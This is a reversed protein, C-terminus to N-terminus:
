DILLAAFDRELWSFILSKSSCSWKFIDFYLYRVNIFGGKSIYITGWFYIHRASGSDNKKWEHPILHPYDLLFDLVNANLVPKNALEARFKEGEIYNHSGGGRQWHEPLYLQIKTPDWVLQGGKKHELVIWDYDNKPVFPAIDCDIIYQATTIIEANGRIMERVKFLHDRESLIKIEANTWGSRRFAAKLESAQDVDLKLDSM